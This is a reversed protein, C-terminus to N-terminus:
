GKASPLPGPAIRRPQGHQVPECMLRARFEVAAAEESKVPDGDRDRSFYGDPEPDPFDPVGSERMCKSFARQYRIEEETMPPPKEELEAPVPVNYKSCAMQAETWRPYTKKPAGPGRLEVRGRADPDPLEFGQERLCGVWQRQAAVYEAVVGSSSASPQASQGGATAVGPSQENGGCGALTVVVTAAAVGASWSRRRPSWASCIMM